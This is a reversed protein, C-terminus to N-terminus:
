EGGVIFGRSRLWSQAVEPASRQEASMLRTLDAIVEDTIKRVIPTFARAIEPNRDFAEQRIAIAANYPPHYKRDDRLVTLGLAATRADGGTVLGFLCDRGDATAQYIAEGPLVRLRESSVAFDYTQQLGSLGFDGNQYDSDLCLTGPQGSRIYEAMNSLSTLGLQQAQEQNVAIADTGNFWTPELWVIRNEALDREQLARYQPSPGQVPRQNLFSAWATGTNEWYLDIDGGVLANRNAQADGLACRNEVEAGVSILAAVAMECLVQHEPSNKGGVTYTQDELEVPNVQEVLLGGGISSGGCGGVLVAVAVAVVLVVGTRGRRYRSTRTRM